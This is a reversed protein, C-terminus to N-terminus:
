SSCQDEESFESHASGSSLDLSPKQLWGDLLRLLNNEGICVRMFEGGNGRSGM